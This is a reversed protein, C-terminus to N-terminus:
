QWLRRKTAYKTFISKLIPIINEHALNAIINKGIQIKHHVLSRDQKISLLNDVLSVPNNLDLLFGAEGVQERLGPLDSYFVPCGLSFAELPPLNTPGFYTPMVLALSQQYLNPLEVDEVFGIYNIQNDIDYSKAKNLIYELNGKDSGSFVANIIINHEEKLIKIADLIYIHNKHAWFQAPYYIYEGSINYKKKIDIFQLQKCPETPIFPIITIRSEDIGYRKRINEKGLVSDSIVQVAQKLYTSYFTERSVFENNERIEPFEVFDRHCLDWVTMIYNTRSLHSCLGNPSLFYVLDISNAFIVQDIKHYHLNLKRLIRNGINTRAIKHFIKELYNYTILIVNIGYQAFDQQTKANITFFNFEFEAGQKQLINCMSNEYQFGGGNQKTQSLFVAIKLM